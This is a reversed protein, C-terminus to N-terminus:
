TKDIGFNTGTITITGKFTPGRSTFELATIEIRLGNDYAFLTSTVSKGNYSVV